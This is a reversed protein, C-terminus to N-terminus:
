AFRGRRWSEPIAVCRDAYASLGASDGYEVQKEPFECVEVRAFLGPLGISSDSSLPTESHFYKQYATIWNVAIDRQATHLDLNGSCVLAHLREELADKVHANWIESKFPQPWLNHIDETGGLGPAILYDIEYDDDRANVIGYEHFVKQRVSASVDRVVEEHPMACVDNISVSRTAGPTLNQEPLAGHEFSAVSADAGRMRSHQLILGGALVATLVAVCVVAARTATDFRTFLRWSHAAPRQEFQRLQARLLARPGDASPRQSDFTQRHGRVFDAITGEMDAMRARCNWCATLHAKIESARRRSLEGDATQLLEQDSIHLDDNRM